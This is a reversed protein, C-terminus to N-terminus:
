PTPGNFDVFFPAPQIANVCNGDLNELSGDQVFQYMLDPICGRLVVNHGQGPAVLALSNAL